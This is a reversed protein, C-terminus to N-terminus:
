HLRTYGRQMSSVALMLQRGQVLPRALMGRDQADELGVGFDLMLLVAPASLVLRMYTVQVEEVASGGPPLGGVWLVELARGEHMWM